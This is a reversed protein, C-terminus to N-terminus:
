AHNHEAIAITSVIVISSMTLILTVRTKVPSGTPWLRAIIYLIWAIVWFVLLPTRM